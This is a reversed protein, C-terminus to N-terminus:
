QIDRVKNEDDSVDETKKIQWNAAGCVCGCGYVGCFVQHSSSQSQM